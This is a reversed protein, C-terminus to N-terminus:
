WDHTKVNTGKLWWEFGEKRSDPWTTPHIGLGELGGEWGEGNGGFRSFLVVKGRVEGLTPIRNELFWMDRGGSGNYVASHVLQSFLLSARDEQKISMIITENKGEPSTLFTHVAEVIDLFPLKQPSIGHYSILVGNIVSLRIDLVRIGSL